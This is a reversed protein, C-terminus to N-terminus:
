ATEDPKEPGPGPLFYVLEVMDLPSKTWSITLTIRKMANENLGPLGWPRISLTADFISFKEIDEESNEIEKKCIKRLIQPLPGSEEFDDVTGDGLEMQALIRRGALLAVERNRDRVTQDLISSQLSLIVALSSALLVVALIVEILTFGDSELLRSQSLRKEM